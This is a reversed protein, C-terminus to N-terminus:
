HPDKEAQAPPESKEEPSEAGEDMKEVAPKPTKTRHLQQYNGKIEGKVTGQVTIVQGNEVNIDGEVVADKKILLMQGVFAIDGKVTGSIEAMQCILALDADSGDHLRVM